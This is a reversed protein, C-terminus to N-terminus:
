DENGHWVTRSSFGGRSLWKAQRREELETLSMGIDAALAYVVELVDALEDREEEEHATLFEESEERLKRRLLSSYEGAEAVRTVPVKGRERIIEPIRDRVLKGTHRLM